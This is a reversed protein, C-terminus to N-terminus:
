VCDISLKGPGDAETYTLSLRLRNQFFSSTTLKTTAAKEFMRYIGNSLIARIHPNNNSRISPWRGALLRFITWYTKNEMRWLTEIEYLYRRYKTLYRM